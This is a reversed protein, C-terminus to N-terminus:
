EEEKKSLYNDRKKIFKKTRQKDEKLSDKYKGKYYDDCDKCIWETAYWYSPYGVGAGDTYFRQKRCPKIEKCYNCKNPM